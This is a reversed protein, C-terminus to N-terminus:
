THKSRIQRMRAKCGALADVGVAILPFSMVTMLSRYRPQVEILLHTCFYALSILMLLMHAEQVRKQRFPIAAGLAILLNVWIYLGATFKCMRILVRSLFDGGRLAGIEAYVNGIFAWSGWMINLKRWALSLFGSPSISLRERMLRDVAAQDFGGDFVTKADESNYQGDYQENLGIIWKWEPVNNVLGYENLGTAKVFGSLSLSILFYLVILVLARAFDYKRKNQGDKLRSFVRIAIYVLVALVLIIGNPRIANSLALLVAAAASMFMGKTRKAPTTFVYLAWLMLVESLHQNTLVSVMMFTGPYLFFVVSAVRAGRESAFRKALLYVLLTSLASFLCNML